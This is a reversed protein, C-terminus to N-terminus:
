SVLMPLLGFGEEASFLKLASRGVVRGKTFSKPTQEKTAYCRENSTSSVFDSSPFSFSIMVDTELVEM